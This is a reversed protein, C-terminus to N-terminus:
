LSLLDRTATTGVTSLLLPCGYFLLVYFPARFASQSSVTKGSGTQACAMLDRKNMLIPIAYKQIPTPRPFEAKIVNDMLVKRLNMDEFASVAPPIPPEGTVKMPIKDYAEFNVGTKVGLDFLQSEEVEKPYFLPTPREPEEQDPSGKNDFSTGFSDTLSVTLYTKKGDDHM